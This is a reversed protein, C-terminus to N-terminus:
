HWNAPDRREHERASPPRRANKIWNARAAMAAQQPISLAKWHASLSAFARESEINHELLPQLSRGEVRLSSIRYEVIGAKVENRGRRRRCAQCVFRPEFDSLRVYDLWQGAGQDV